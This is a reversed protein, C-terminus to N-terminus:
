RDCLRPDGFLSKYPSLKPCALCRGRDGLFATVMNKGAPCTRKQLTEGLVVPAFVSMIAVKNGRLSRNTCVRAIGQFYVFLVLFHNVRSKALTVSSLYPEIEYPIIRGRSVM